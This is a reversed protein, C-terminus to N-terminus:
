SETYGRGGESQGKGEPSLKGWGVGGEMRVPMRTAAPSKGYATQGGGGRRPLAPTPHVGADGRYRGDGGMGGEGALASLPLYQTVDTM